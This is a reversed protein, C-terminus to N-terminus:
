DCLGSIASSEGAADLWLHEDADSLAYFRKGDLMLMMTIGGRGQVLPLWAEAACGMVSEIEGVDVGVDAPSYEARLFGNGETSGCADGSVQYYAQSAAGEDDFLFTLIGDQACQAGADILMFPLSARSLGGDSVERWVRGTGIVYDPASRSDRHGARSVPYLHNGVQVVSLEIEALHHDASADAFLHLWGEMAHDPQAAGAPMGFQILELQASPLQGSVLVDLTLERRVAHGDGVLHDFGPDFAIGTIPSGNAAADIGFNSPAGEAASAFIVQPESEISQAASQVATGVLSIDDAWCFDGKGKGILRTRLTVNANNDAGAPSVSGSIFNGNDDGDLLSLVPVWSSGGNTSVEAICNDNKELSDSALHVTVRVDTFGVTSVPRSSVSGGDTHRLSYQGIAKSNDVAVNSSTTWGTAKGTEFSSLLIIDSPNATATNVITCSGELPDGNQCDSSDATYGTPVPNETATCTAGATAGTINFVAPVGESALQPSNTVSGSTCNLSVSVSAPNADSFDKRVTFANAVLTNVITCSGGLPDGNQCDSQNATYGTPVPNETATCTAGAAAGTINFVAPASEAAPQPNNTVTGSTCSLTVSVSATNNDSFDQRVTFSNSSEEVRTNIITCIGDLPDGNQCRSNDMAYGAPIPNETAKCTAGATAGTINFVAPASEAALQPNNTVSGSTCTLSVNVSATNNDSFDKLVTFSNSSEEVRTNVITCSGDLPDGNQCDTQNRTYGTPVTPETATCTTGVTAGSITFVAPTSESALQPNNTVTGSTCSLTVSVSATNNDSFDKHVTFSSTTANLTNVITCSGDLPDGNQCDTQNRSYGTPVVPETATCTAGASAGSISFVAPVGERALQPNNTVTGSTCSATISVSATNNDSFDKRVTFSNTTTSSQAGITARIIASAGSAFTAKFVVTHGQATYALSKHSLAFGTITETIGNLVITNNDATDLLVDLAGGIDTYLGQLFNQGAGWFVVKGNALATGDEIFAKFIQAGAGPILGGGPVVTANDAVQTLAGGNARKYLGVLGDPGNGRFAVDLGGRDVVPFNNVNSFTVGALGPILTSNLLVLTQYVGGSHVGLESFGTKYRRFVAAGQAMSAVTGPSVVYDTGPSLFSDAGNWVLITDHQSPILRRGRMTVVEGDVWPDSLISWEAGDALAVEVLSGASAQGVNSYVGLLTTSPSVDAVFAVRGGGIGNRDTSRFNDFTAGGQGPVLTNRDAVKQCCIGVASYVGAQFKGSADNGGTGTFAVNGDADIAPAAGFGTFKGVGGPIATVGSRAVVSYEVALEAGFSPVAVALLLLSVFTPLPNRAFLSSLLHSSHM